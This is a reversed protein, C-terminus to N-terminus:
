YRAWLGLEPRHSDFRLFWEPPHGCAGALVWLEHVSAPLEGLVHGYPGSAHTLSPRDGGAFATVIDGRGFTVEEYFYQIPVTM